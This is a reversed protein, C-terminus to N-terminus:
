PDQVSAERATIDAQSRRLLRDGEVFQWLFLGPVGFVLERVRRVLALALAVHGPIGLMEGVLVYGGEHVGVAGPIFFLASRVGQGVSELILAKDFTAPIGMAHLAIWVEVAGFIWSAMTGLCCGALVHKRRYIERLADDVEDAKGTLSRWKPDKTCKAVIGAILHFIGLRQVSYFGVIFAVALPAALLLPGVLNTRGTAVVFLIAGVLSFCAQTFVSITIDVLTTGTAIPVASGKLIALRARVIDGGAQTAPLLNSVSEGVWRMWFITRFEPSEDRPFLAWWVGGDLAMPVLHCVLILVLWWGVAAVAQFVDRAGQQILLFSFLAVGALFFLYIAPGIRTQTKIGDEAM